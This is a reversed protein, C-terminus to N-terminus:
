RPQGRSGALRNGVGHHIREPLLQHTLRTAAERGTQRFFQSGDAIPARSQWVVVLAARFLDHAKVLV